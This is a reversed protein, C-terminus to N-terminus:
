LASIAPLLVGEHQLLWRKREMGGGYGTLSGVRHCPIIIAIRNMGNARGVARAAGPAGIARAQEGYSRTQGFPITQLYQWVRLQFDNGRPELPVTFERRQGRFYEGLQESLQSMVPHADASIVEPEDAGCQGRLRTVVAGLHPDDGFDLLLLAEDDAVAVVPGVPTDIRARRLLPPDAATIMGSMKVFEQQSVRYPKMTSSGNLILGATLYCSYGGPM